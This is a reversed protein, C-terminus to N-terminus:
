AHEAEQTKALSGLVGNVFPADEATGYKKALEVAENISVSIPIDKEYLMEYVALRLISLSVKSLRSVKWGRTFSEITEDLTSENTQVNAAVTEAFDDIPFDGAENAATVVDDINEHNISRAFILAFAQERAERRKM